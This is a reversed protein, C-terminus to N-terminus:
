RLTMFVELLLIITPLPLLFGLLMETKFNM